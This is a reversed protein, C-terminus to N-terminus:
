GPRDGPSSPLLHALPNMRTAGPDMEAIQRSSLFRREVFRFSCEGVIFTLWIGVIPGVLITLPWNWLYLSYARRGIPALPILAPTVSSVVLGAGLVAAIPSTFLAGAVVLAIGVSGVLGRLQRGWIAVACGLMIAGGNTFTSFIESPWAIFMASGAVAGIVAIRLLWHRPAIIMVLPWILYFQEEIALSWAHGMLGLQQSMAWNAVYAMASLVGIIWPEAIGFIGLFVVVILLVVLAPALRRVRRGYFARLRIGSQDKERLLTGTILYGSLVFFATVGAIGSTVPLLDTHDIMVLLIALGRLGDLDERHASVTSAASSM